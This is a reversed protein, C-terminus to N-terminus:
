QEIAAIAEIELMMDPHALMSVDCFLLGHKGPLDLEKRAEKAM